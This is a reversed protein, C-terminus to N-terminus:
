PVTAPRPWRSTAEHPFESNRLRFALNKTLSDVEGPSFQWDNGIRRRLTSLSWEARMLGAPPHTATGLLLHGIEHAMARGLLTATDIGSKSAMVAIRDAYITALAGGEEAADVYAYGLTKRDARERRQHPAALIRVLLEGTMHVERCAAAPPAEAARPCDVWIVDIRAPRLINATTWKAAELDRSPVGFVNYTRIVLLLALTGVHM